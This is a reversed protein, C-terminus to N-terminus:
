LSQLLAKYRPINIGKGLTYYLTSYSIYKEDEDGESIINSLGMQICLNTKGTGREGYFCIVRKTCFPYLEISNLKNQILKKDFEINGSTILEQDPIEPSIEMDGNEDEELMCNQVEKLLTSCKFQGPHTQLLLNMLSSFHTHQNFNPNGKGHVEEEMRGAAYANRKDFHNMVSKTTTQSLAERFPDQYLYSLDHVGSVGKKSKTPTAKDEM